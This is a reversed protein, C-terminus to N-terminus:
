FQAKSLDLLVSQLTQPPAEYLFIEQGQSKSYVFVDANHSKFIFIKWGSDELESYANLQCGFPPTTMQKILLNDFATVLSSKEADNSNRWDQSFRPTDHLYYGRSYCARTFLDNKSYNEQEIAQNIPTAKLTDVLCNVTWDCRSELLAKGDIFLNFYGFLFSNNESRKVVDFAFAFHCPNGVIM